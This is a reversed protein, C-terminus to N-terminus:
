QGMRGFRKSHQSLMDIIFIVQHNNDSMALVYHYQGALRTPVAGVTRWENIKGEVM